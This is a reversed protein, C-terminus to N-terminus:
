DEIGGLVREALRAQSLNVGLRRRSLIQHLATNGAAARLGVYALQMRAEKQVAQVEPDVPLYRSLVEPPYLPVAPDLAKARLGTTCFTGVLGTGGVSVQQLADYAATVQSLNLVAPDGASGMQEGM